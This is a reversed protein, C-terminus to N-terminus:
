RNDFQVGQERQEQAIRLLEVVHPPDPHIKEVAKPLIDSEATFGAENAIYTVVALTGDALTFSYSGEVNLQGASGVSGTASHSIGNESEFHHSYAGSESPTHEQSLILVPVPVAVDQCFAVALLCSLIIFKMTIIHHND